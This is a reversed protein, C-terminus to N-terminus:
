DTKCKDKKKRNRYKSYKEAFGKEFQRIQGDFLFCKYWLLEDEEHDSFDYDYIGDSWMFHYM